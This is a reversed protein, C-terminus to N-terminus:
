RKSGGPIGVGCGDCLYWLPEGEENTYNLNHHADENRDHEVGAEKSEDLAGNEEDGAEGVIPAYAEGSDELAELKAKKKALKEMKKRKKASMQEVPVEPATLDGLEEPTEM